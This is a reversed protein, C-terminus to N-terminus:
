VKRCPTERLIKIIEMMEEGQWRRAMEKGDGQWRRAM